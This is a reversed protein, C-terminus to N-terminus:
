RQGDHDLGRLVSALRERGGAQQRETGQEDQPEEVVGVSALRAGWVAARIEDLDNSERIVKAAKDKLSQDITLDIITAIADSKKDQLDLSGVDDLLSAESVPVDNWRQDTLWREPHPVYGNQWERSRKQINIAAVLVRVPPRVGETAFWAKLARMYNWQHPYADWFIRFHEPETLQNQAEMYRYETWLRRSYLRGDNKGVRFCAKVRQGPEGLWDDGLRSLRALEDDDDLLSVKPDLAAIAILRIYAGEEAPTMAAIKKSDLWAQPDFLFRKLHSGM